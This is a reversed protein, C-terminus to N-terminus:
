VGVGVQGTGGAGAGARPDRRGRGPARGLGVVGVLGGVTQDCSHLVQRVEGGRGVIRAGVDAVRLVGGPGHHVAGGGVQDVVRVPALGRVGRGLANKRRNAPLDGVVVVGGGSARGGGAPQGGLGDRDRAVAAGEGAVRRVESLDSPGAVV